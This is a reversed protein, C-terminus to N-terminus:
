SRGEGKYQRGEIRLREKQQNRQKKNRLHTEEKGVLASQAWTWDM